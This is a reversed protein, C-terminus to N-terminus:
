KEKSKLIVTQHPFAIEIDKEDFRKKINERLDAMLKFSDPANQAWLAMRLDVSSNNLNAVVVNVLPVGNKIDEDNRTDLLNPHKTAEDIMISRAVDIDSDYSIGVLFFNCIKNDIIDRNEIVSSNIINNPVIVRNNEFTRIVTHRLTIDEVRGTINISPINILEDVSFPRFLSLFVGAILNSFAEQAAFGLILVAVGSGALLSVAFQNLLNIQSIIVFIFFIYIASSLLRTLFKAMTPDIKKNKVMVKFYRNKLKILVIMVILTIITSLIFSILGHSFWEESMKNVQNIWEFM